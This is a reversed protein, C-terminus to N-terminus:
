SESLVRLLTNMEKANARFNHNGEEEIHTDKPAYREEM